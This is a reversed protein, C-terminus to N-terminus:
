NGIQYVKLGEITGNTIDPLYTGNLDKFQYDNGAGNYFYFYYKVRYREADRLIEETSFKNLTHCYWANKSFWAVRIINAAGDAYSRNSAFTGGTIGSKQLQQAMKYEDDGAQFM